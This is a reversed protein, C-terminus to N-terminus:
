LRYYKLYWEVFKRVGKNVSTAPKYGYDNELPTTDAWTSPVDGPQMPLLQKEAQTGLGEEINRIFERLDVAKGAGINYVRYPAPSTAPDPADGSWSKTGQPVAMVTIRYVGEVVDDIYTFDRQMDGNNFVKIPRGELIAQTFLFYAMDPRGWPGYVTFFRLGTTPLGYLHSYSHAMLENAKKSAAYLSVPHDVNDSTSFPMKTNLGYVSSSSAYVLHKVEYRRCRELVNLYGTLNSESYAFPNEISYRVCAQAALNCVVDFQEAACLAEMSETDTLDIQAFRLQPQTESQVVLGYAVELENIGQEALRGFKLRVDYYNNLNDIGVVTHGEKVLRLALHHGIFGASGTVLIKM